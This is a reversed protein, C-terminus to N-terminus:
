RLGRGNFVTCRANFNLEHYTISTVKELIKQDPQILYLLMAKIPYVKLASASRYIQLQHVKAKVEAM